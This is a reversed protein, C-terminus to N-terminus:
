IVYLYVSYTGVARGYTWLVSPAGGGARRSRTV